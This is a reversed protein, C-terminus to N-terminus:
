LKDHDSDAARLSGAVTQPLQPSEKWLKRSKVKWPIRSLPSLWRITMFYLEAQSIQKMYTSFCSSYASSSSSRNGSLLTRSGQRKTILIHIM